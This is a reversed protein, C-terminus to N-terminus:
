LLQNEFETKEFLEYEKESYINQIAEFEVIPLDFLTEKNIYKKDVTFAVINYKSDNKFYYYAMEAQEGIGFIILKKM